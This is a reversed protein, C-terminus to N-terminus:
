QSKFGSVGQAGLWRALATIQPNVLWRLLQSTKKQGTMPLALWEQESMKMVQQWNKAKLVSLAKQSLPIELAQLWQTFPQQRTLDFKHWLQRAREPSIGPTQRLLAEDLALWSFLHEFRQTENLQWWLAEGVGELHLQQGAWVLRALFQPECEPSAWYCSLAHFDNSPPAPKVRSTSRWAVSDIRPIGQGALSINLRDGPAIDREQWRKVSGINVRSVRKDDLAVPELRAVVAVKGTRGVKFEIAKVEAIQTAPPYKWAVVWSGEGPQWHRGEPEKASRVVIGDTAFPLPSAFWRQRQDEVDSAQKVPLSLAAAYPFGAETLLKLKGPMGAPGDPWSWIFVSLSSLLGVDMKRQMAGAVRARANMGGMQKQVHGEQHLFLEGQLVSDALPGKLMKPIAPIQNVKATWDEGSVGNGRSVAQVLKGARYVLTVAVGDVKPQMWLDTKDAMWQALAQRDKLKRVGTHAVPHLIGGKLPPISPEEILNGFCSRWQKLQESLQDFEDDSVGSSGTQWYAANWEDIQQQLRNIEQTAREESWVPCEAHVTFPLGMLLAIFVGRIDAM